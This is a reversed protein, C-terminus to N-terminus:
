AIYIVITGQNNIGARAINITLRSNSIAPSVTPTVQQTASDSRNWLAAAMIDCGDDDHIEIDYGITPAPTGPVTVVRLVQGSFYQTTTTNLVGGFEATWAIEVRTITRQVIGEIPAPQDRNVTITAAM